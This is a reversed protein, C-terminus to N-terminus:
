LSDRKVFVYYYWDASYTSNSRPYEQALIREPQFRLSKLEAIARAPTWYHTLLGGHASDVLTGEGRWFMRSASRRLLRHLSAGGAQVLALAFRAVTLIPLFVRYLFDSGSSFRLATQQLRAQNWSPRVFIARANHSSFILIGNPRLLRHIHKLCAIRSEGPLVFDIGNFAVVVADFSSDPFCGLDAADAVVFSMTPFRARCAKIMAAACDVGVYRAARNARYATTRGGGVGLDLIESGPQIYTEFLLKECPTVYDLAAYYAVIEKADYIQRNRAPSPKPM